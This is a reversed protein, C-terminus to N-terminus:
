NEAKKDTKRLESRSWGQRKSIVHVGYVILICSCISNTLYMIYGLNHKYDYHCFLTGSHRGVGLFSINKQIQSINM